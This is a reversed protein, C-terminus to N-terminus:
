KPEAVSLLLAAQRATEDRLCRARALDEGAQGARDCLAQRFAIWAREMRRLPEQQAAGALAAAYVATLKAEWAQHSADLCNAMPFDPDDGTYKQRAYDLCPPMGAGACDARAGQTQAADLCRDIAAPDFGSADGALAPAGMLLLLALARM